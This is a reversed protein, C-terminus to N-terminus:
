LSSRKRPFKFPRCIEQIMHNFGIIVTVSHTKTAQTPDSFAFIKANPTSLNENKVTTTIMNQSFLKM